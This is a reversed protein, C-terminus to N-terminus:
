GRLLFCLTPRFSGLDSDRRVRATWRTHLRKCACTFFNVSWGGRKAGLTEVDSLDFTTLGELSVMALANFGLLMNGSGGACKSLQSSVLLFKRRGVLFNYLYQM